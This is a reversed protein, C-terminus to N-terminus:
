LRTHTHHHPPRLHTHTHTHPPPPTTQSPRPKNFNHTISIHESRTECPQSPALCGIVAEAITLRGPTFRLCPHSYQSPCSCGEEKGGGGRRGECRSRCGGGGGGGGRWEGKERRVRFMEAEEDETYKDTFTSTKNTHKLMCCREGMGETM